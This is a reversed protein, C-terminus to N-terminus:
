FEVLRYTVRPQDDVEEVEPQQAGGAEPEEPAEQQTVRVKSEEPAKLQAEGDMQQQGEDNL